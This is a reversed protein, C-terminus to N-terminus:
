EYRLADIPNLNGARVAPALGSIVGVLSSIGFALMVSNLTVSTEIVKRMLEALGWGIAIGIGGGLLSLMLAEVLFQIAIDKKTAGLAKRLGIERTRETVSVLMINAIGIGGVVLSIAAIGSLAATIAGLFSNIQDLIEKPELMTYDDSTLGRRKFYTEVMQKARAMNVPDDIQVAMSAPKRIGFIKQATTVPLYAYSDPDSTGGGLGGGKSETVGIVKLKQGAIDIEKGLPDEGKRFLKEEIKPGIVVIKQARQVMSDNIFVGKQAKINRIKSYQGNIGAAVIDYTKNLYKATGPKVVSGFADTIPEGLMAIERVDDFSFKAETSIPPGGGSRISVKGPAVLLLNAGLDQFQKTVFGQLGSGIAVLLIVSAVGIIIGLATLFSRVKNTRIAITAMRFVEITDV